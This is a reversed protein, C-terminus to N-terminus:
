YLIHTYYNNVLTHVYNSSIDFILMRVRRSAVNLLVGELNPVQIEHLSLSSFRNASKLSCLNFNQKWLITTIRFVFSETSVKKKLERKCPAISKEVTSRGFTM